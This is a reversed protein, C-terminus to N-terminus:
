NGLILVLIFNTPGITTACQTSKFFSGINDLISVDNQMEIMLTVSTWEKQM